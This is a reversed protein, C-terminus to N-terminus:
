FFFFFKKDGVGIPVLSKEAKKYPHQIPNQLFGYLDPYKIEAYHLFAKCASAMRNSYLDKRAWYDLFTSLESYRPDNEKQLKGMLANVKEILSGVDPSPKWEPKSTDDPAVAVTAAAVILDKPIKTNLHKRFFLLYGIFLCKNLLIFWM